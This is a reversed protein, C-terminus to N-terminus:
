AAGETASLSSLVAEVRARLEGELAVLWMSDTEGLDSLRNYTAVVALELSDLDTPNFIIMGLCGCRAKHLKGSLVVFGAKISTAHAVVRCADENNLLRGLEKFRTSDAVVVSCHHRSVQMFTRLRVSSQTRDYANLADCQAGRAAAAAEPRKKQGAMM